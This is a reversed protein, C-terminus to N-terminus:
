LGRDEAPELPGYHQAKTVIEEFGLALGARKLEELVGRLPGTADTKIAERSATALRDWTEDGVRWWRMGMVKSWSGPVLHPFPEQVWGMGTPDHEGRGGGFHITPVKRGRSWFAYSADYTNHFYPWAFAMALREMGIPTDFLRVLERGDMDQVLPVRSSGCTADMRVWGHGLVYFQVVGHVYGVPTYTVQAPIGASRLLAAAGVASSCCSGGHELVVLSTPRGGWDAAESSEYPKTNMHRSVERAFRIVDGGARERMAAAMERIVPDDHVVMATSALYPRVEGPYESPDEPIPFEGRPLPPERRLVLSTITVTVGTRAPARELRLTHVLNGAPDAHVAAVAVSIPEGDDTEARLWRAVPFQEHDAKPCYRLFEVDPVDQGVNELRLFDKVLVAAVGQRPPKAGEPPPEAPAVAAALLVALVAVIGRLMQPTSM